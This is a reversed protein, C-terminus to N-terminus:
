WNLSTRYMWAGLVVVLIVDAAAAWAWPLVLFVGVFICLIAVGFTAMVLIAAIYDERTM